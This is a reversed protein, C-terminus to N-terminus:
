CEVQHTLLLFSAEDAQISPLPCQQKQFTDSSMYKSAGTNSEALRVPSNGKTIYARKAAVKLAHQHRSCALHESVSTIKMM